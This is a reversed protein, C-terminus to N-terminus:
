YDFNVCGTVPTGGIAVYHKYCNGNIVATKSTSIMNNNIAESTGNTDCNVVILKCGADSSDSIANHGGEYNGYDFTCANFIYSHTPSGGRLSVMYPAAGDWLFICKTFDCGQSYGICSTFVCNVAKLRSQAVPRGWTVRVNDLWKIGTGFVIMSPCISDYVHVESENLTMPAICQSISIKGSSSECYIRNGTVNTVLIDNEVRTVIVSYECNETNVNSVTGSGLYPSYDGEREFDIGSKPATRNINTAYINTVNWGKCETFSIGNRGAHDIRIHDLTINYNHNDSPRTGGHYPYQGIYIGDGYCERITMDHININRCALVTIGHCWEHTSSTGHIHSQYDGIIEGYGIDVNEVDVLSLVSCMETDATKQMLCSGSAFRIIINSPVQIGTTHFDGTYHGDVLYKKTFLFVKGSDSAAILAASIAQSDDTVGDGAAGYEEPTIFNDFNPLDEIIHDIRGNIREDESARAEAEDSIDQARAEAEDSIDQSLISVQSSILDRLELDIRIDENERAVSEDVVEGHLANDAEIRAETEEAILHVLEDFFMEVTYRTINGDVVYMDGIHIDNLARYLLSNWVIWGDKNTTMTATTTLVAEYSNAFNQSALTIFRGLDFIVNWYETRSLAVGMPVARSSIYATGTIADVVITNKEYQRTIDWQIPSAYKVANMTVFNEVQDIMDYLMSIMWDQNLEHFDTRPYKNMYWKRLGGM